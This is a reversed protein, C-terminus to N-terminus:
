RHVAARTAEGDLPGAHGLRKAIVQADAVLLAVGLVNHEVGSHRSCRDRRCSNQASRQRRRAIGHVAREIHLSHTLDDLPLAGARKSSTSSIETPRARM